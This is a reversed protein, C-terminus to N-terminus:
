QKQMWSWTMSHLHGEHLKLSSAVRKGPGWWPEKWPMYIFRSSLLLHDLYFLARGMFSVNKCGTTSTSAPYQTDAPSSTAPPDLPPSPTAEVLSYHVNSMSWRWFPLRPMISIRILLHNLLNSMLFTYAAPTCRIHRREVRLCGLYLPYIKRM